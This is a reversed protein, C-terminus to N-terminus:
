ACVCRGQRTGALSLPACSSCPGGNDFECRSWPGPGSTMDDAKNLERLHQLKDNHSMHRLKFQGCKSFDAKVFNYRVACKAGAHKACHCDVKKPRRAGARPDFFLM